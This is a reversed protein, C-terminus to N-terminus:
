RSKNSSGKRNKAKTREKKGKKTTSENSNRIGEIDEAFRLTQSNDSTKKKSIKGINWIDDQPVTEQVPHNEVELNKQQSKELIELELIEEEPNLEEISEEKIKETEELVINQEKEISSVEEENNPKIPESFDKFSKLVSDVEELSKPGFGKIELLSEKKSALEGLTNIGQEVIIKETRSAFGLQSVSTSNELKLEVFDQDSSISGQHQIDLKWETLKAALRVNQGDKGIALSLQDEPVIVLSSGTIQNLVVKQVEAPSLSKKIFESDDDSWEVVDIKEGLLENVVNQIRLGRLGVCAGVADVGEQNSFVAIKSRSGAERSLAKIEIVGNFIEPVETKFLERLLGPDNRSLIIEPGRVSNDVRQVLFKLQQGVRYREGNVQETIPMIGEGKGLSIVIHKPDLRQITGNLIEGTKDSFEKLVLEREAERLKQIVIQKATQAAIRGPNHEIFGTTIEDGVKVEKFQKQAESLAIEENINEVIEVVRRVTRVVTEGTNPNLDVKVDQGKALEDRKYANELASKIASVVVSHSLNREAALQTVALLMENKM